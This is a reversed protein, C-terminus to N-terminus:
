YLFLTVGSQEYEPPNGDWFLNGNTDFFVTGAIMSERVSKAVYFHTGLMEDSSAPQMIFDIYDGNSVAVTPAFNSM